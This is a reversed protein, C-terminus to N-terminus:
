GDRVSERTLESKEKRERALLYVHPVLFLATSHEFLLPPPILTDM